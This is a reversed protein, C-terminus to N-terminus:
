NFLDEFHGSLYIKEDNWDMPIDWKGDDSRLLKNWGDESTADPDRFSFILEFKHQQVDFHNFFPESTATLFLWCGPGGPVPLGGVGDGTNVTGLNDQIKQTYSSIKDGSIIKTVKLNITQVRFPIAQTVSTDDSLWLWDGLQAADPTITSFEGSFEMSMPLNQMDTEGTFQSTDCPENSYSCVYKQKRSDNDVAEKDISRCFTHAYSISEEVESSLSDIFLDGIVPLTGTHESDDPDNVFVRTASIGRENRSVKYGDVIERLGM